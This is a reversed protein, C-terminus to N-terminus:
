KRTRLYIQPKYIKKLGARVHQVYNYVDDQPNFNLSEHIALRDDFVIYKGLDTLIYDYTLIRELIARLDRISIEEKLLSRLIKTVREISVTELVSFILEPFAQHLLALEYEVTDTDLLCHANKRIESALTLIIFGVADWSFLGIEKIKKIASEDNKEILGCETNNSPNAATMSIAIESQALREKTANVLLQHTQLGIRPTCLTDNIKISFTNKKLSSSPALVIDPLRIGLEYFIGNTLLIFQERVKGEIKSDYISIPLADQTVNFVHQLYDADMIIEITKPRLLTALTEEIHSSPLNQIVGEYINETITLFDAISIKLNLLYKVIQEIQDKQLIDGESKKDESIKQRAREIHYVVQESGLLQEPRQKIVEIVLLALFDVIPNPQEAETSLDSNLVNERLWDGPSYQLPLYGLSSQSCYEWLNRFLEESYPQPFDHVLIRIAEVAQSTRIEISPRGPIGLDIFVKSVGTEIKRRFGQAAPNEKTALISLTPALEIVVPVSPTNQNGM